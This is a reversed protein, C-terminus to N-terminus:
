VAFVPADYVVVSYSLGFDGTLYLGPPIRAAGLGPKAELCINGVAIQVAVVVDIVPVSVFCCIGADQARRIFNDVM